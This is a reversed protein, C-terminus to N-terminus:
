QQPPAAERIVAGREDSLILVSFRQIAQREPTNVSAYDFRGRLDTYGDKHFKVSGDALKAYVKVYVKGLPKGDVSDAVKLSGYNETFKVDMDTAFYTAVRTKGAGVVEVLMNKKQLDDPLPIAVKDKGAPLQVAQSRAPKTFAFQGGTQQAFPTRSFLLEVDMPIYNITVAGLNQWSLNVNRGQVAADFAPETAALNGQNQGKDDPDAVRPGKGTAEDIHNIVATFVNRWRDVPHAVYKAAISRAKSPNEEYLAMYAACYDYQIKTPVLDPNVRSFAAQAEEIRDQLLLYYVTALLDADNLQTRYTLTKLLRHYQENFAANVIQRRHGLAHTRANVLPKYELHEYAFREVQDVTLLPTDIPGGVQAVLPDHHALFEKALAPVNHFMGYSWLTPNFVHRSKLLATAKEFFARERMRFAIKDLNLASCNERNMVAFVEDDTGFQSIYDWSGTDISRPKDLVEIQATPAVAVVRESKAVHAPFHTFRGARPFYFQYDVTQTRYPELDVQVTKTNQGNSVPIAGTPLQVLVSLRQRTSTPNTVVVQCGYVTNTIFEGSVYKDLREGNEDRFRDNPKYFNQGVLVPVKGDPGATSRVEEHFAVIPSAPGLNMKGGEFAVLHKAPEFPLDVVSLAFMMETFNRSADALYRSLFPGKDNHRAYDVWFPSVTVLGAHQEAIRLKYYNNEAWEMTPDLKRYLQRIAGLKRDDDFFPVEREAVGLGYLYMDEKGAAKKRGASLSEKSKSLDKMEKDAQDRPQLKAEPAAMAGGMGSGAALSSMPRAAGAPMGGNANIGSRMAPTETRARKLESLKGAVEGAEVNMESTQVATDFLMLDRELRPPLLAFLDGLHRATREPENAIRRSLLVREITNLRGHRWPEMYSAVDHGVLWHDLFTKDKKSALYPKVVNEFFARDKKWLFFNLEHCAYKSYLTRKEADKLKPWTLIFSFEALKPNHSLTSYLTYLEPLSEYAEFRSAVVDNLVFQQGKDLVTVQKQQTFHEAPNLGDKLRLDVFATAQEPLSVTRVTTSLPDVAVVQLMAHGRLKKRDIRIVGDEDAELNLLQATPEALYDLNAFDAGATANAWAPEKAPPTAPLIMSPPAEGKPRFMDGGQALQEGTETSRVAWPNLLLQPRDLMNGPYKRMGRRDLVYRYEDGINRGTLYVSEPRTPVVGSLEADRVKGLNAFANFAPLYRTGFVHVRAFKSADKLRVIVLDDNAAISAIQTPKLGPVELSRLKGLLYGSVAPGDTIRIRIKEGTIKQWLDYDGAPLGKAELLGDKIALADFRDSIFTSGRMELLAFEGRTPKDGSGLYPVTVTEGAKAHVAGRYTHRDLPLNWTHQTGEPGVASVVTIDPLPGLVVRGMADTKLTANIVEKFDRHKFAVQVPRDPKFEGTRGLLEIAFHPGFKAFHLDEIKDTREVENLAFTESVAVDIPIGASLSKVKAFLTVGLKHLRGPTRFEHTSERDEFLKFDPVETSSAIGSQDISVIRLRVEELLKLSIPLNNLFLAPRIILQTPRQSLLNERDVHIGAAFRYNEPQHEITDICAFDGRSIVIPRRGPQASFPLIAKGAKDCPYEVGSMWVTAGPVPQSADDVVTINQGATGTSVLPKLRGKRILARSSKGSGIFDIVYVGPKTLQPFEFTKGVRRLPPSESKHTQEANAVLGDLNIDTDVEKLQARYFNKTNVEFVKVLLTPANKIFLDLRVPEDAAFDTKNTYAFDIDIRDKFHAFHDPPLQAAWTEPDGIGNEAKTEAFLRTLWTNDIYPEFEAADKADILFHQLYSRVLEQDAVAPGTGAVAPLLTFPSFDVNLQAPFNQSERRENWSKAMYPQFRPLQLYALFRDKDYIGDARDLALRHFLVHAKLANHVPPLPNTFKELRGLYDRAIARDRKWDSDAGPCLKSVYARVFTGDNILGPRLKLLEDLQTQTLMTHIPLAGFPSAHEANLDDHILKPLNPLDPRQLRQLLHRRRPYDLKESALWDLAADEFNDLNGWRRLSEGKLRDRHILNQDLATPLQPVAGVVERQHNFQLGLHATLFALSKQPDKEYTLLAHRVQIEIVRATHGHREIWPKLHAIAVDYQGTNLAHLAHYYYYDETGPILQKLAEARDKALAFDEVYGIDAAQTTPILFLGAALAALLTAPLLATPRKM